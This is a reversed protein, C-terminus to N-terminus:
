VNWSCTACYIQRMLVALLCPQLALRKSRGSVAFNVETEGLSMLCFGTFFGVEDENCTDRFSYHEIMRLLEKAKM